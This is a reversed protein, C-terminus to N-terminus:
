GLVRRGSQDIRMGITSGKSSQDSCSPRHGQKGTWQWHLLQRIGQVSSSPNRGQVGGAFRLRMARTSAAKKAWGRRHRSQSRTPKGKAM